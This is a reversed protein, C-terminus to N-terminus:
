TERERHTVERGNLNARHPGVVAGSDLLSDIVETGLGLSDLVAVSDQGLPRPPTRVSGPTRSLKVPVGVMRFEGVTTTMGRDVVQPDSLVDDLSRVISAPIGLAIMEHVHQTTLGTGRMREALITRLEPENALRDTNTTFRPDACLEPMQLYDCLLQFQRDTGAAVYVYDSSGSPGATEFVNCPALSPHGSGLREPPVGTALYDAATPHHLSLASDLLSVDVLQGRGSNCRENLALLVGSFAHMGTMLDVVPVPIRVPAGGPEGNIHMLGSYAQLVADYGPLHAMAGSTGFASIRCYVLRPYNELLWVPHLGWRQMTGALFNEVLVDAEDLLTLLVARGAETSLDVSLHRKNRNLGAYYPSTGDHNTRGWLRTGDGAPPEVKIVDAGHDGLMQAAYPGALMRSLDVVTIGSLAGATELEPL